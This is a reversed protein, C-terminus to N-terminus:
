TAARRPLNSALSSDITLRYLGVPYRDTWYLNTWHLDIWHLDIWVTPSLYRQAHIHRM